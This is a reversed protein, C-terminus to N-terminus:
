STEVGGSGGYFANTGEDYTVPAVLARQEGSKRPTRVVHPVAHLWRAQQSRVTGSPCLPLAGAGRRLYVSGHPLLGRGSGRTHDLVVAASQLAAEVDGSATNTEFGGMVQEPTVLDERDVNLDVDHQQEDYAVEVLSAAHRAVESTEAVVAAIFQGNYAVVDNQFVALEPNPADIELANEHWLVALVGPLAEAASADIFAVRGRAITSLVPAVYTAGEVPYEFAYRATGTVKEPGDLRDFPAGVARTTISM